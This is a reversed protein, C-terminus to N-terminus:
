VALHEGGGATVARGAAPVCDGALGNALRELMAASYQGDCEAVVAFREDGAAAVRLRSAFGHEPVGGRALRDALGERVFGRYPADGKTGVALHQRGTAAVVLGAQPVDRRALRVLMEEFVGVADGGDRETGGALRQQGRAALGSLEPVNKGAFRDARGQIVGIRNKRGDQAVVTLEDRRRAAVM